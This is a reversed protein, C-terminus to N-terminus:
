KKEMLAKSMNNADRPGNYDFEGNSTIIKIVPFAQFKEAEKDRNLQFDYIKVTNDNKFMDNLEDFISKSGDRKKDMIAHCHGCGNMHYIVLKTVGQESKDNKVNQIVKNEYQQVNKQSVEHYQKNYHHKLEPNMNNSYNPIKDIMKNIKFNENEQKQNTLVYLTMFNYIMIAIISILLIILISTVIDSAM